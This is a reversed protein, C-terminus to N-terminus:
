EDCDAGRFKAVISDQDAYSGGEYATEAIDCLAIFSDMIERRAKALERRHQDDRPVKGGYEIPFYLEWAARLDHIRDLLDTAPSDAAEAALQSAPPTM